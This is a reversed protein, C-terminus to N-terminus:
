AGVASEQAVPISEWAELDPEFADALKEAINEAITTFQAVAAAVVSGLVRSSRTILM